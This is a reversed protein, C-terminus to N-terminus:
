TRVLAYIANHFVNHLLNLFVCLSNYSNIFLEYM